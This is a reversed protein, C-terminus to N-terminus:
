AAGNGGALGEVMAAFQGLMGLSFIAVVTALGDALPVSEPVFTTALLLLSFTRVFTRWFGTQEPLRGWYHLGYYTSGALGFTLAFLVGLAVGTFRAVVVGALLGVAVGVGVALRRDTRLADHLSDLVM